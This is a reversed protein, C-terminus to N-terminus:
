FDDEEDFNFFKRLKELPPVQTQAKVPVNKHDDKPPPTPRKVKPIEAATTTMTLIDKYYTRREIGNPTFRTSIVRIERNGPQRDIHYEEIGDPRFRTRFATSSHNSQQDSM